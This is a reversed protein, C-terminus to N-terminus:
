KSSSWVFLTLHEFGSLCVNLHETYLFPVSIDFLITYFSLISVRRFNYFYLIYMQILGKRM